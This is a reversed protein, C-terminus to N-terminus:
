DDPEAWDDQEIGDDLFLEHLLEEAQPKSEATVYIKLREQMGAKLTLGAGYVPIAVCPIDNDQLVQELLGAWMAEKEVLLEYGNNM